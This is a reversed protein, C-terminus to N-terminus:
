LSAEGTMYTQMPWQPCYCACSISKQETVIESMDWVKGIDSEHSGSLIPKRLVSTVVHSLGM